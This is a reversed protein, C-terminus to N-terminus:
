QNDPETNEGEDISDMIPEDSSESDEGDVENVAINTTEQEVVQPTEPNDGFSFTLVNGDELNLKNIRKLGLRDKGHNYLEEGDKANKIFLMNSHGRPVRKGMQRCVEDKVAGMSKNRPISVNITTWKDEDFAKCVRVKVVLNMVRERNQRNTEKVVAAREKQKNKRNEEKVPAELINRAEKVLVNKEKNTKSLRELEAKQQALFDDMKM